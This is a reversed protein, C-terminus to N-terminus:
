ELLNSFGKGVHAFSEKQIHLYKKLRLTKFVLLL